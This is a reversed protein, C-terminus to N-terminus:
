TQDCSPMRLDFDLFIITNVDLLAKEKNTKKSQKHESNGRKAM